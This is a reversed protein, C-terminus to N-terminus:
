CIQMILDLPSYLRIGTAVAAQLIYLTETMLFNPHLVVVTPKVNIMGRFVTRYLEQTVM